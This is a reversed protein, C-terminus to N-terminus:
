ICGKVSQSQGVQGGWGTTSTNLMSRGIFYDYPTNYGFENLKELDFGPKVIINFIMPFKTSRFDKREM